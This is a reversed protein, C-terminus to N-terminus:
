AHRAGVAILYGLTVRSTGDTAENAEAIAERLAARADEWRGLESLTRRAAIFPGSNTLLWTEVADDSPFEWTLTDTRFRFSVGHTAFLTRVHDPDGWRIFPRVFVPPEPLYDALTTFMEASPSDPAWATFAVTGGPRCARAVEGAVVDHRPAFIMGFGSLVADFSGAEVPLKEADGLQWSVDVGADRARRRADDFWAATHDVGLVQAGQQAAAIAVSGSGTAVDLVRQGPQVDAERVLLRAAPELRGAVQRYDGQEWAQRQAHKFQGLDM